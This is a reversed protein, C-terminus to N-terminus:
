SAMKPRKQTGREGADESGEETEIRKKGKGNREKTERREDIKM